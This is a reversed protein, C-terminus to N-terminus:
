AKVKKGSREPAPACCTKGEEIEPVLFIKKKTQNGNIQAILTDVIELSLAKTSFYASTINHDKEPNDATDEFGTVSVDEPVNLGIDTLTQILAVATQNAFCVVATPRNKHDGFTQKLIKKTNDPRFPDIRILSNQTIELDADRMFRIFAKERITQFGPMSPAAYVIKRHGSGYLHEMLTHIGAANDIGIINVMDQYKKRLVWHGPQGVAVVPFDNQILGSFIPHESGYVAPVVAIGRVGIDLFRRICDNEKSVKLDSIGLVMSYGQEAFAEEMFKLFGLKHAQASTNLILGVLLSAPRNTYPKNKSVVYGISPRCEILGEHELLSLAKKITPRSVGFESILTRESDLFTGKKYRGQTIRRRLIDSIKDSLLQKNNRM